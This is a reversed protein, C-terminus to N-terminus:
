NNKNTKGKQVDSPSLGFEDKFCKRFHSVNQFGAKESVVAIPEPKAKLLGLALNLRKKRIYDAPKIGTIDSFKRYFTARSMFLKESLVEVSFTVDAINLDIISNVNRIFEVDKPPLKGDDILQLNGSLFMEKIKLRNILLSNIKAVLLKSHFPKEVYDDAGTELGDIRTEVDTKASLLVVPIHSTEPASKVRRCFEIGDMVPMMVDSIIIHPQFKNMKALADSGNLALLVEFRKAFLGAMFNALEVNDEVILMKKGELKDIQDPNILSEDDPENWYVGTDIIESDSFHEKGQKFKVSFRSGIGVTSEAEVSGHMVEVLGKVMSLGIGHGSTNHISSKARYFREFLRPIEDHDIGIGQDIVHIKFENAISEIKVEVSKNATTYKIANSVLNYIIKEIKDYDLWVYLEEVNSSVHLDINKQLAGSEFNSVVTRIFHVLEIKSVALKLQDQDLKRLDILQNILRLLRLANNKISVAAPPLEGKIQGIQGLILTLPTRFEHSVNTFFRLKSQSAEQLKESIELITRNQERLEATQEEVKKQLWINRKKVHRVRLRYVLFVLLLFVALLSFRFWNTMWFPPVITVLIETTNGYNYHGPSAELQFIYNGPPVKIYSAERNATVEVWQDQYNKLRFRYRNPNPYEFPYANFSFSFSNQRHTLVIKDLEFVPRDFLVEGNITDGPLVPKNLLSFTEIVPTVSPMETEINQPSFSIVGTYGGYFVTGDADFFFADDMFFDNHLFTRFVQKKTNYFSIGRNTSMWINGDHDIYISYVVNNSLGDHEYFSKLVKNERISFLDLGSNTGIWLSDGSVALAYIKNDSLNHVGAMIREADMHPYNFKILGFDNIVAWINKKADKVVDRISQGFTAMESTVPLISLAGDDLNVFGLGATGSVVLVGKDIEKMVYSRYPWAWPHQKDVSEIRGSVPNFVCLNNLEGIWITGNSDEFVSRVQQIPRPQGHRTYYHSFYRLMKDESWVGVGERDFGLWLENNRTKCIARVPNSGPDTLPEIDWSYHQFQNKSRNLYALGNKDTGIWLNGLKDNLMRTVNHGKFSFPNLPNHTFNEITYNDSVKYIRALFGYGGIWFDHNILEFGNIGSINIANKFEGSLDMIKNIREFNSDSSLIGENTIFFFNEIGAHIGYCAGNFMREIEIKGTDNSRDFSVKLIGFAGSVLVSQSNVIRISRIQGGTSYTHLRNGAMDLLVITSYSSLWLLSDDTQLLNTTQELSYDSFVQQGFLSFRQTAACFHNLGGGRTVVWMNEGLGNGIALVHNGALSGTKNRSPKFVEFRNGDFVNVGDLTGIWIRGRPDIELCNINNQSLGNSVDFHDFRLQQAGLGLCLLFFFFFFFNKM